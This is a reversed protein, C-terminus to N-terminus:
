FTGIMYWLMCEKKGNNRNGSTWKYISKGCNEVRERIRLIVYIPLFFFFNVKVQEILLLLFLKKWSLTLLNDKKVVSSTIFTILNCDFSWYNNSEEHYSGKLINEIFWFNGSAMPKRYLLPSGRELARWHFEPFTIDPFLKGEGNMVTIEHSM